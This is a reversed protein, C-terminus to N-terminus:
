PLDDHDEEREVMEVSSYVINEGGTANPESADTVHDEEKAESASDNWSVENPESSDTMQDGKNTASAAENRSVEWYNTETEVDDKDNKLSNTQADNLEDPPLDDHDEGREVIEVSSYVINEGGRTSPESLDIVHDGENTESASDNRSVEGYKVDTEVVDNNNELSNTQGDKLEYPPLNGHDGLDVFEVSSYIINEGGKAKPESSDIVQEEEKAAAASDIVQEEEEAASASDNRSVGNPESSDIVQDVENSASVSDNRSAEWYKADTEVDDKDKELSDTKADNLEIVTDYSNAKQHKGSSHPKRCNLYGILYDIM